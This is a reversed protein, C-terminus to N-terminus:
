TQLSQENNAHTQETSARAKSLRKSANLLYPWFLPTCSLRSGACLKVPM